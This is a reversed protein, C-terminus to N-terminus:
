HPKSFRGRNYLPPKIRTSQKDGSAYVIRDLEAPPKVYTETLTKILCFAKGIGARM